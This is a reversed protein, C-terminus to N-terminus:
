AFLISSLRRRGKLTLPDTPGLAEFVKLLQEKAAGENWEQDRRILELLHDIASEPQGSSVLALSLDYRSQHDAPDAEVAKSLAAADGSGGAAQALAIMSNVQVVLPDDAKDDPVMELTEKARDFDQGAVYCRALGTIARLNEPAVGLVQAFAQAAEGAGGESLATDAMDLVEDVQPEGDGAGGSEESLKAVFQELQSQPQVGMFGDVPQGGVFGFVAPISQVRLQGAVQPNKDIDIRVLKVKGKQKRVVAELQPGLTKCPGCWDATFQVVVAADRSGDVVDSMFTADSGEIIVDGAGAAGNSASSDAGDLGFM